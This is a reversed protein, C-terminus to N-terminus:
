EASWWGDACCPAPFTTADCLLPADYRADGQALTYVTINLNRRCRLQLEDLSAPYVAQYGFHVTPAYPMSPTTVTPAPM